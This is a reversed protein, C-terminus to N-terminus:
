FAYTFLDLADAADLLRLDASGFARVGRNACVALHLADPARLAHTALETLLEDARLFDEDRVVFVTLRGADVDERLLRLASEAADVTLSRDRTRRRLACHAELITLRSIAAEEISEIWDALPGSGPEQIYWKLLASTDVYATGVPITPPM